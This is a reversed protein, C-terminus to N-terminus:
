FRYSAGVNFFRGVAGAQHLAPNYAAVGEGAAGYTEVDVPPQRNFLNLVTGHITWNKTPKYTLTFNTTLFSGIKCYSTPPTTTNAFEGFGSSIGSVCDNLGASPDTVDYSGVWDFTTTANWAGKDYSFIAQARDKPTGTDGGIVTPGHTGALQYTTGNATLEYSFLHTFMFETKLSGWDGLNFRYSTDLDIGTTQTSNANVYGTEAYLINGVGSAPVAQTTGGGALAITQPIAPGRVYTPVFDPL